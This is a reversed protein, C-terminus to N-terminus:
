GVQPLGHEAWCGILLYGGHGEVSVTRTRGRAAARTKDRIIDTWEAVGGNGRFPDLIFLAGAREAQWGGAAEPDEGRDQRTVVPGRPSREHAIEWLKARQAKTDNAKPRASCM